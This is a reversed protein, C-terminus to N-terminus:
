IRISRMHALHPQPASTGSPFNFTISAFVLYVFGIINLLLGYKGLKYPGDLEKYDGCLKGLIRVGLPM